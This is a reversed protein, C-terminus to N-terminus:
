PKWCAIRPPPPPHRDWCGLGPCAAPLSLAGVWRHRVIRCTPAGFAAHMHASGNSNSIGGGVRDNAGDETESYMQLPCCRPGTCARRCGDLDVDKDICPDIQAQAPTHTHTRARAAVCADTFAARGQTHCRLGVQRRRYLGAGRWQTYVTTSHLCICINTTHSSSCTFSPLNLELRNSNEIELEM